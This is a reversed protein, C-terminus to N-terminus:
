KHDTLDEEVDRIVRGTKSDVIKEKYKNNKRDIVREKNVGEPSLDKRISPFWGSIIHAMFKKGAGLFTKLELSDRVKIEESVNIYLHRGKIKDM